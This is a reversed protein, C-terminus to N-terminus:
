RKYKRYIITGKVAFVILTAMTLIIVFFATGTIVQKMMGANPIGGGITTSDTTEGSNDDPMNDPIKIKQYYYIIEQEQTITGEAQGVIEVFQYGQIEKKETKYEEGKYDEIIQEEEIRDKTEKDLYKVTIKIKQEKKYYYIVTIAEKEMEGESNEPYEEEVLYYREFEKPEIKYSDGENGEHVENYLIVGTDFDIHKEIVGSSIHAYKYEIIIEEKTMTVTKEQPEEVLVYSEFDKAEPEIEKGIYGEEIIEELVEETNKDIYRITVQAKTGYYVRIVNMEEKTGIILPIGTVEILTYGELLKEEYKEIKEKYTGEKEETANDDKEGDYYYEIKYKIDKLITYYINIINESEDVGITIEEKDCNTYNYGDIQIIENSALIKGGYVQNVEKKSEIIKEGTEKDIYNVTYTLDSRKIYYITIVNEEENIGIIIKEKDSSSYEYGEIEIVQEKAIIIAEFTQNEIIRPEHLEEHTEEELYKVTYKLDNRKTYYLEIINEDENTSIILKDKNSSDYNYGTIPIVQQESIVIDEFIQDEIRKQEHLEKKTGKELYKITYSLDHRKTYYIKVINNEGYATITIPNNEIYNYNYGDITIIEDATSVVSEFLQNPVVKQEKIEKETGKELYKVTYTLDNRKTYYLNIVNQEKDVAITINEKDSREYYYGPIEIVEDNATIIDEFTQNQVEKSPFIVKNTEEELYNITYSLDKRKEYYIKIINNKINNAEEETITESEIKNEEVGITLPYNETRALVYGERLEEKYEEIISSYQAVGVKTKSEDKIGAYYYEIKYGYNNIEYRATVEGSERGFTFKTGLLSGNKGVELGKKVEWADFTYWEKEAEGIDIRKGALETVTVTGTKGNLTGGDLNEKLSSIKYIISNSEEGINGAVDVAKMRIYKGNHKLDLKLYEEETYIANEMNFENDLSEDIIYYYGKLGTKIEKTIEGSTSLTINNNVRDCAKAYFKYTSGNDTTTYSINIKDNEDIENVKITPSNPAVTDKSTNTTMALENTVNIERWQNETRDKQYIKYTKDGKGEINWSLDVGGKREEAELNVEGELTIQPVKVEVIRSVNGVMDEVLIYIYRVENINPITIEGTAPRETSNQATLNPNALKMTSTIYRYKSLGSNEENVDNAEIKLVNNILEAKEIVPPTNDFYYTGYIQCPVGEITKEPIGEVTNTNGANDRIKKVFLYYKGTKGEGIRFETGSTYNTWTGDTLTTNSKSLYYQYSNSGSLGSGGTEEVTITVNRTKVYGGSTPNVTITPAINDFNYPGFRQYTEGGITIVTGGTTSVNGVNDSIRRVFIYYIGSKGTGITYTGGNSYNTWTGETLTTNSKSLYYQYSNSNSLGAGGADGVTITVNRSKAYGGSAPNVVITPLTRDILRSASAGINGNGAYDNCVNEGVTITQTCSGGNTVTIAYNAGSGWFNTITGNQVSIDTREFNYVEESFNINYQITSANTPNGVQPTITCTPPTTDDISVLTIQAYGNGNKSEEKTYGNQMSGNSVKNENIHGSGGGGPSWYTKYGGYWGGGACSDGM